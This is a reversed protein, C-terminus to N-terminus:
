LVDDPLSGTRSYISPRGTSALFLFLSRLATVNIKAKALKSLVGVLAGAKDDGELLFAIKRPSLRLGIKRAVAKFRSANVPVFDLQAKRGSPFGSFALLEVGANRLATLVKLGQGASQPVEATFYAIKHLTQAM